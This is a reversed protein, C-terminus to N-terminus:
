EGKVPLSVFSLKVVFDRINVHVDQLIAKWGVHISVGNDLESDVNSDCATILFTCCSSELIQLVMVELEHKDIGSKNFLTTRVCRLKRSCSLLLGDFEVDLGCVFKLDLSWGNKLDISHWNVWSNGIAFHLGFEEDVVV